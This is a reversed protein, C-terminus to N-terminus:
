GCLTEMKQCPLKPVLVSELEVMCINALVPGLPSSMAVVDIQIYINNNNFSSHVNITLLKKMEPKTFVTTTEHKEWIRKIIIDITHELPVSTFLSKVDFSVIEYNEPIKENKIKNM